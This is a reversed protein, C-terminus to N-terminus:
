RNKIPLQQRIEKIRDPYLEQLLIGETEDLQNLVTGWPDTVMSHGYSVYADQQSQATSCLALFSQADLARARALLEYHPPGSITNFNAPFVYLFPDAEEMTRFLEPFRLDFCIGVGILGISTLAVLPESGSSMTQSEQHVFGDYTVDFLHIKRYRGLLRGDEFVYATNFIKGGSREPISGGILICGASLEEMLRYSPGPGEEAFEKFYSAEYPCNWMEPLVIIDGGSAKAREVFLRAKLLNQEKNEAVHLQCLAIRM